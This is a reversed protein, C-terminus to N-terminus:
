MSTTMVATSSPVIYYNNFWNLIESQNVNLSWKYASLEVDPTIDTLTSFPSIISAESWDFLMTEVKPLFTSLHLKNRLTYKQKIIGNLSELGNNTSPKAFAAGEYWYHIKSVWQETFYDVFRKMTPILSLKQLLLTAGHDFLDDTFALQLTHIDKDIIQWDNKAVLNRHKRCKRIMHSWCMLRRSNPFIMEQASTIALYYFDNQNILCQLNLQVAFTKISNFLKVYCETNEDESILAMGFSKFHRNADTSYNQLDHISFIKPRDKRQEYVILNHLKDQNISHQPYNTILSAKTQSQSLGCKVHNSITKRIPSPLRTTPNRENDEHEHLNRSIIAVCHM